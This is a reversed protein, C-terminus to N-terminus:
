LVINAITRRMVDQRSKRATPTPSDKSGHRAHVDRGTSCATITGPIPSTRVHVMLELYLIFYEQRVFIACVGYLKFVFRLLLTFFIVQLRNDEARDAQTGAVAFITHPFRSRNTGLSDRILDFSLCPWEPRLSHYMHYATSDYELEEGETLEDVGARWIKTQMGQGQRSEGRQVDMRGAAGVAGAVGAPPVGGMVGVKGDLADNLEDREEIEELGEDVGEEEEDMEEPEYEDGFPDEFVLDDEAEVEGKAKGASRTATSAPKVNRVVASQDARPDSCGRDKRNRQRKTSSSPISSALAPPAPVVSKLGKSKSKKGM